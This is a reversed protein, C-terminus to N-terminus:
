FATVVCLGSKIKADQIFAPVEFLRQSANIKFEARYVRRKNPTRRKISFIRYAKIQLCIRRVVIMLFAHLGKFYPVSDLTM